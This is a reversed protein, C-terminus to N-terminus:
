KSEWKMDNVTKIVNEPTTGERRAIIKAMADITIEGREAEAHCSKWGNRTFGRCLAVLNLHIDLRSGGGMGRKVIAHHPDLGTPCFRGCHECRTKRRYMELVAEDIIKMDTGLAQQRRAVCRVYIPQGQLSPGYSHNTSTQWRAESHENGGHRACPDSKRWIDGITPTEDLHSYLDPM